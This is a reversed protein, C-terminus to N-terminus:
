YRISVIEGQFPWDETRAVLGARVPNQIMYNWKESYSESHRLVHDFFGPQWHPVPQKIASSISRKLLRVTTGIELSPAIRIFCHIHDPMIVYRGFSAGHPVAGRAFRSFAEHVPINDLLPRRDFTCFTIFYVPANYSSFISALRNPKEPYPNM